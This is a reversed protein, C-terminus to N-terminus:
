SHYIIANIEVFKYSLDPKSLLLLHKYLIGIFQVCMLFIKCQNESRVFHKLRGHRTKVELTIYDM